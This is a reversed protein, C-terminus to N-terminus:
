LVNLSHTHCQCGVQVPELVRHYQYVGNLCEGRRLVWTHYHVPECKMRSDRPDKPTEGPGVLCRPASERILGSDASQCHCQSELLMSPIRTPDMNIVFYSPCM